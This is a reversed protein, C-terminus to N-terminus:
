YEQQKLKQLTETDHMKKTMDDIRTQLAAEFMVIAEYFRKLHALHDLQAIPTTQWAATTTAKMDEIALILASNKLLGDAARGIAIVDM